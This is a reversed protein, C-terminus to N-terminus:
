RGSRTGSTWRTASPPRTPRPEALQSPRAATPARDDALVLEKGLEQSKTPASRTWRPRRTSGTSRAASASTTRGPLAQRGEGARRPVGRAHARPAGPDGGGDRARGLVPLLKRSRRRRDGDRAAAARPKTVHLVTDKLGRDTLEKAM